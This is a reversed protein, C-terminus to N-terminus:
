STTDGENLSDNITISAAYTGAGLIYFGLVILLANAAMAFKWQWRSRDSRWELWIYMYAELIICIFTGLLAGIL